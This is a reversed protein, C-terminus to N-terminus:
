QDQSRCRPVRYQQLFQAVAPLDKAEDSLVYTKYGAFDAEKDYDFTVKVTSCGSVIAILLIYLYKNM